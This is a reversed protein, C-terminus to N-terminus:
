SASAHCQTVDHVMRCCDSCKSLYVGVSLLVVIMARGESLRIVCENYNAEVPFQTESTLTITDQM